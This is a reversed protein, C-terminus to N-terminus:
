GQYLVVAGEPDVIKLNDVAIPSPADTVIDVLARLHWEVGGISMKGANEPLAGEILRGLRPGQLVVSAGLIAFSITGVIGVIALRIVRVARSKPVPGMM